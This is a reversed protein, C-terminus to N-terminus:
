LYQSKQCNTYHYLLSTVIIDGLYQPLTTMRVVTNVTVVTIPVVTVTVLCLFLVAEAGVSKLSWQKLGIAINCHQLCCCLYCLPTHCCSFSFCWCVILALFFFHFHYRTYGFSISKYSDYQYLATLCPQWCYVIYGILMRVLKGLRM